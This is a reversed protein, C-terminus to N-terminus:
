RKVVSSHKSEHQCTCAYTLVSKASLHQHHDSHMCFFSSVIYRCPPDVKDFIDCCPDQIHKRPVEVPFADSHYAEPDSPDQDTHAYTCRMELLSIHYYLSDQFASTLLSGATLRSITEVSVDPGLDAWYM